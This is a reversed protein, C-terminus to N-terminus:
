LSRQQDCETINSRLDKPVYIMDIIFPAYTYMFIQSSPYNVHLKILFVAKYIFRFIINM